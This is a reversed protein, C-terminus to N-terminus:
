VRRPPVNEVKKCAHGHFCVPVQGFKACPQCPLDHRRVVHSGEGLPRWKRDRGSTFLVVAPVGYFSAIHVPGGDMTLIDPSHGIQNCLEDFNGSFPGALKDFRRVLQAVFEADEPGAAILFPEDQHWEAILATWTELDLRRSRSQRGAIVVLPPGGEPYLRPRMSPRLDEPEPRRLAHAFLRMFEITEHRERWDYAV